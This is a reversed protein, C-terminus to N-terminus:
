RESSPAGDTEVKPLVYKEHYTVAPVGFVDKGIFDVGSHDGIKYAHSLWRHIVANRIWWPQQSIVKDTYFVDDLKNELRRDNDTYPQWKDTPGFTEEFETCSRKLVVTDLLGQPDEIYKGIAKCVVDYKKQGDEQGEAYFFAAYPVHTYPRNDVGAKGNLPTFFGFLFPMAQMLGYFQILELVNRPKVVVKYCKERCYECLFQFHRFYISHWRYCDRNSTTGNLHLWPTHFDGQLKPVLMGKEADFAFTGSALMGGIKDQLEGDFWLTRWM